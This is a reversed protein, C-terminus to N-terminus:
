PLAQAISLYNEHIRALLHGQMEGVTIQDFDWHGLENLHDTDEWIRRHPQGRWMAAKVSVLGDNPGEQQDLLMHFPKLIGLTSSLTSQRGRM